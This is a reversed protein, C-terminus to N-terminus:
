DEAAYDELIYRAYLTPWYRVDADQGRHREDAAIMWAKITEVDPSSGVHEDIKGVLFEAYWGAWDEDPGGTAEHHASATDALLVSLADIQAQNTV